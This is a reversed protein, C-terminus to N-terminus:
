LYPRFSRCIDRNAGTCSYSDEMVICATLDHDYQTGAQSLPELPKWGSEGWIKTRGIIFVARECAAFINKDPCILYAASIVAEDQFRSTCFM